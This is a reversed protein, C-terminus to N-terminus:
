HRQQCRNFLCNQKEEEACVKQIKQRKHVYKEFKKGNRYMNKQLYFLLFHSSFLKKLTNQFPLWLVKEM